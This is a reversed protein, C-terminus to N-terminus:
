ATLIDRMVCFSEPHRIAVDMSQLARIEVGGNDYATQSYPNPLIEMVGWEGIVLDSFNGFFMESCVNESTGKTLNRYVQNSRAVPYGNLEGPIGNRVTETITKWIYDDNKNKLRKLAGITVANALYAMSGVDANADAVKTEMEILDDFTVARGNEGGSITQINSQNVLGLPTGDSGTGHLATDDLALAITTILENRVFAEVALSAQMLMNRSVFSKAGITKMKLPVKDFTANSATLKGTESIWQANAAGNQRPIEVNGVLGSLITAGLRTVMAKARLMEIFSGTLLETKVLHGGQTPEGVIYQGADRQMTIDTPMFFGNTDRGMRKSLEASVSREFGASRWDNNMAANLARVISYQNKEKDTLGIDLGEHADRREDAVSHFGRLRLDEMVAARAEDISRGEDILSRRREDSVNFDRCMGEIGQIRAREASRVQAADLVPAPVAPKQASRKEDETKEVTKTEVDSMVKEKESQRNSLSRYVGVSPDAPVTVLSVEFIEWDTARRVNESPKDYAFVRYGCSVNVLVRDKVLEFARNGEETKAFRATVYTRHEDQEVKEVVGLLRDWDHNFLLSMSRQREGTRMAGPAHSLVEDGFYMPVPSDSVVPFRVSRNEEDVTGDAAALSRYFLSDEKEKPM